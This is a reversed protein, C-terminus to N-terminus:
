AALTLANGTRRLAGPEVLDDIAQEVARVIDPGRRGWGFLRASCARWLSSM